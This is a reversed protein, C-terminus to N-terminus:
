AGAFSSRRDRIDQKRSGSVILRYEEEHAYARHKLLTSNAYFKNNLIHFLDGEYLLARGNRQYYSARASLSSYRLVLMDYRQANRRLHTGDFDVPLRLTAAPNPVKEAIKTM